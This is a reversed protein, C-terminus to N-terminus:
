ERISRRVLKLEGGVTALLSPEGIEALAELLEQDSILELVLRPEEAAELVAPVLNVHDRTRRKSFQVVLMTTVCLLLTPAAVYLAKKRFQRRRHTARLVSKSEALISSKRAEMVPSDDPRDDEQTRSM